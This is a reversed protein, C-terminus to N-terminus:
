WFFFFLQEWFHAIFSHPSVLCGRSFNKQTSCDGHNSYDNEVHCDSGDLPERFMDASSRCCVSWLGHWQAIVVWTECWRLGHAPTEALAAGEQKTSLANPLAPRCYIDLRLSVLPPPKLCVYHLRYCLNFSVTCCPIWNCVIRDQKFLDKKRKVYGRWLV